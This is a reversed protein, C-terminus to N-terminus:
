LRACPLCRLPDTVRSRLLSGGTQPDRARVQQKEMQLEQIARDKESLQSGDKVALLQKKLAIIATRYKKLMAKEDM